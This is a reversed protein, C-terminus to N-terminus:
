VRQRARKHSTRGAIPLTEAPEDIRTVAHEDDPLATETPLTDANIARRAEAGWCALMVGSVLLLFASATPLPYEALMEYHKIVEYQERDLVDAPTPMLWYNLVFATVLSAVVLTAGVGTRWAPRRFKIRCSAMTAAWALLLVIFVCLRALELQSQQISDAAEPMPLYALGFVALLGLVLFVAITKRWM